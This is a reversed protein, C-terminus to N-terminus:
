PRAGPKRRDISTQSDTEELTRNGPVCVHCQPEHPSWCRGCGPCQWGLPALWCASWPMRLAEQRCEACRCRCNTRHPCGMCLCTM